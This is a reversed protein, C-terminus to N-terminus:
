PLAFRAAASAPIQLGPSGALPRGDTARLTGEVVGTTLQALLAGPVFFGTALLLGFRAWGLHWRVSQSRLTNSGFYEVRRQHLEKRKMREMGLPTPPEPLSRSQMRRARFFRSHRETTGPIHGTVTLQIITCTPSPRECRWDRPRYGAIDSARHHNSVPPSRKGFHATIQGYATSTLSGCSVEPWPSEARGYVERPRFLQPAVFGV